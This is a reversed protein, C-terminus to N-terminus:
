GPNGSPEILREFEQPAGYVQALREAIADSGNPGRRAKAVCHEVAPV